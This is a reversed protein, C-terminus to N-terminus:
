RAPARAATSEREMIEYPLRINAPQMPRRTEALEILMAAATNAIEGTAQRVTTLSPQWLRSALSDDFGAVALEDPVSVGLRAALKMVGVAMGDNAAFIATPRTDSSLLERAAAEGSDCSFDGQAVRLRADPFGALATALGGYRAGAATHDPLGSIFAIDRHGHALLRAGMERGAGFDDTLLCLGRHLYKGPMLRAFARGRQELLDLVEAFDCIPPALLLGEPALDDLVKAVEKVLAASDTPEFFELIMHFGAERCAREAGIILEMIFDSFYTPQDPLHEVTQPRQLRACVLALTFSRNSRLARALRHPRYELAAMSKEVLDRMRENVSSEGNVVRSVTKFSVGAHRAVDKITPSRKPPNEAM